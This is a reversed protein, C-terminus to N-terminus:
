EALDATVSMPMKEYKYIQLYVITRFIHFSNIKYTAIVCCIFSVSYYSQLAIESHM